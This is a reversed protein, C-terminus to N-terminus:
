KLINVKQNKLYFKLVYRSDKPVLLEITNKIRKHGTDMVKYYGNIYPFVDSIIEIVDGWRVNHQQILDQSMAVWNEPKDLNVVNGSATVLCYGDCQEEIPNYVTLNVLITKQYTLNITDNDNIVSATFPKNSISKNADIILWILSILIIGFLPMYFYKDINKM